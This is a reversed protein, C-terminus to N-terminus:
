SLVLCFVHMRMGKVEWFCVPWFAQWSTKAVPWCVSDPFIWGSIPFSILLVSSAVEIRIIWCRGWLNRLVCLLTQPLHSLLLRIHSNLTSNHQQMQQQIDQIQLKVCTSSVVLWFPPDLVDLPVGSKKKSINHSMWSWSWYFERKTM